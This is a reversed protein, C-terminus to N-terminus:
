QGRLEKELLRYDTKGSAMTPLGAIPRLIISKPPLKLESCLDRQLQKYDAEAGWECFVVVGDDPAAVAAVPGRGSILAEIEDLSVRVGSVKAIRKSRGTIYLYGDVDLRGIDGTRLEPGNTDGSALDALAEAYGMMVNPGAYVVEGTEGTALEVGNEDEIRLAGGQLATGASGVRDASRVVSRCAIRPAAETQGYMVFFDGDRRAMIEAFREVEEVALKGGAQTLARVAPLNMREFHLRRLMAFTSPVGNLITVEHARVADWFSPEFMSAATVVVAGGVALHTNIVSMGYSYFIPLTTVARDKETLQLSHVISATNASINERSLRVFKPSGTSGSTSLLISLQPDVLQRDGARLYIDDGAEQYETPLEPASTAIIVDPRYRAILPDILEAGLGADLLAVACGADVAARYLSISRVTQEGFYFVLRRDGVIDRLEDNLRRLDGYTTVADTAGDILAPRHVDIGSM